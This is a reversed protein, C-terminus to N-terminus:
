TKLTLLCFADGNAFQCNNVHLHKVFILRPCYFELHTQAPLFINPMVFLEYIRPLLEDAGKRNGRPTTKVFLKFPRELQIINVLVTVDGVILHKLNYSRNIFHSSLHDLQWLIFISGFLDSNSVSAFVTTVISIHKTNLRTSLIKLFMSRFLSWRSVYSSNLSPELCSGVM